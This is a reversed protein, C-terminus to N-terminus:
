KGRLDIGYRQAKRYLTARDIGLVESAKSKNYQVEALVRLIAAKELEELSQDGSTTAPAGSSGKQESGRTGILGAFDEPFLVSSNTM